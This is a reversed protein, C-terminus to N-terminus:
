ESIESQGGINLVHCKVMEFKWITAIRGNPSKKKGLIGGDWTFFFFFILFNLSPWVDWNPKPTAETV